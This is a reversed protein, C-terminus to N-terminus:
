SALSQTFELLSAHPLTLERISGAQEYRLRRLQHLNLLEREVTAPALLFLRWRQSQLARSV